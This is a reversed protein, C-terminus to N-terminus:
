HLTKRWHTQWPKAVFDTAGLKMAEIALDMSGHATIMIVVADPDLELIRQLWVFGQEGSSEGPSFNMDLLIADFRNASLLNPIQSPDNCGQVYSFERKLLLKGATLIDEDDDVILIKHDPDSM